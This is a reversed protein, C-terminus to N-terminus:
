EVDVPVDVPVGAGDGEVGRGIELARAIRTAVVDIVDDDAGAVPHL